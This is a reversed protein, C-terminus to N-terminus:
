CQLLSYALEAGYLSAGLLGSRPGFEQKLYGLGWGTARGVLGGVAAGGPSTRVSVQRAGWRGLGVTRKSLGLHAPRERPSGPCTGLAKQAKTKGMHIIHGELRARWLGLMNRSSASYPNTLPPFPSEAFLSTFPPTRSRVGLALLKEGLRLAGDPVLFALWAM